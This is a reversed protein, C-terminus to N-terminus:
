YTHKLDVTSDHSEVCVKVKYEHQLEWGLGNFPVFSKLEWLNVARGIKEIQIYRYIDTGRERERERGIYIHLRYRVNETMHSFDPFEKLRVMWSPFELCYKKGGFFSWFGEEWILALRHYWIGKKMTRNVQKRFLVHIKRALYIARNKVYEDSGQPHQERAKPFWRSIRM